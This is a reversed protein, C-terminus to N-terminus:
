WTVEFIYPQHHIRGPSGPLFSETQVDSTGNGDLDIHLADNTFDADNNLGDAIYATYTQM